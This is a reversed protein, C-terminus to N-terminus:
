RRVCGTLKNFQAPTLFVDRGPLEKRQPIVMAPNTDFKRWRIAFNFTSCLITRYKNVTSAAFEKKELDRLFEQIDEPRIARARKRAFREKIMPLHYDFRSRTNKGHEEWWFDLLAGFAVQDFRRTEFHKGMAVESRRKALIRAAIKAERQGTSERVLQGSADQYSGRQPLQVFPIRRECVWRQLTRESVSLFRAAEPYSLLENLEDIASGVEALTLEGSIYRGDVAKVEEDLEFGELRVSALAEEYVRTRRAM